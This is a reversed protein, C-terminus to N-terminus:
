YSFRSSDDRELAIICRFALETYRVSGAELRAHQEVWSDDARSLMVLPLACHHAGSERHM